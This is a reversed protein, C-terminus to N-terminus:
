MLHIASPGTFAAVKQARHAEYKYLEKTEKKVRRAQRREEKVAAKRQKKDEKSEQSRNQQELKAISVDKEKTAVQKRARPLFDVPLKDKGKLAIIPKPTSMDSSITEAVKKKRRGEPAGIKGPHNDLNSYTTIITECDWVDEDESSEEYIIEKEDEDENEYKEGYERTRVIVGPASEELLEGEKGEGKGIHLLDSPLRYKGDVEFGDLPRDKFAQNLKEALPVQDEEDSYDEFQDECDTGYEQVELMDFQEDLLRRARLNERDIDVSKEESVSLELVKREIGGIESKEVLNLKKNFDEEVSEEPLNAKIVFDEELDDSDSGASSVDSDDDLLQVIEPDVARQIKVNVTKSAVTYISKETPEDDLKSINLRSADYAKVDHPLEDLQAKPNEYYASGGGTNKIERLHLLYNYGDDPFGLELIERRVHDPLPTKSRTGELDGYGYGYGYRNVDDYGDLSVNANSEFDGQEDDGITPVTYPNTDVRVFVRDASPESEFIPDSSDRAMLQFTASKKKDFFKKKGM